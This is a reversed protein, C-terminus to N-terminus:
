IKGLWLILIFLFGCIHISISVYIHWHIHDTLLWRWPTNLWFLYFRVTVSSSSLPAALQLLCLLMLAMRFCSPRLLSALPLREEEKRAVLMVPIATLAPGAFTEQYSIILALSKVGTPLPYIQPLHFKVECKGNM